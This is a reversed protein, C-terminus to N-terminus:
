EEIKIAKAPDSETLDITVQTHWPLSFFGLTRSPTDGTRSFSIPGFDPAYAQGAFDNFQCQITHPQQFPVHVDDVLLGTVTVEQDKTLGRCPDKPALMILHKPGGVLETMVNPNVNQYSLTAIRDGTVGDIADLFDENLGEWGAQTGVNLYGNNWAYGDTQFQIGPFGFSRVQVQKVEKTKVNASWYTYTTGDFGDSRLQSSVVWFWDDSVKAGEIVTEEKPILAMANALPHPSEFGESPRDATPTGKVDSSSVLFPTMSFTRGTRFFACLVFISFVSIGVVLVGLTLLVIVLLSRKKKVPVEVPPTHIDPNM